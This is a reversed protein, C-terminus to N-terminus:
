LGQGKVPAIPAIVITEPNTLHNWWNLGVKNNNPVKIVKNVMYWHHRSMERSPVKWPNCEYGTVIPNRQPIIKNITESTNKKMENKQANKWLLSDGATSNPAVHGGAPMTGNLGNWIGRSLVAIKNADPIVTVHAWWLRISLFWEWAVWPNNKVM